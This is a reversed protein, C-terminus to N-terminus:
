EILLRWFKSRTQASTDRFMEYVVHNDPYSQDVRVGWLGTIENPVMSYRVDVVLTSDNKALALYDNSFWRFRELDKAQLSNKPLLPFDRELNFKTITEGPFFKKSLGVRVADIRFVEGSRTVIKWVLLNAFTPKASLHEFTFGQATLQEAAFAEARDRQIVGLLLYFIAWGLAVRGYFINKRFIAFICLFLVPVTFMPDIVSVSNWAVRYNSFPWFLLTGYTTCADLLGHTAYGITTFFYTQKFSLHKRSWFYLLLSVVLGGIPIFVLAHTFQRHYELFLLPDKKSSIFVDLDPAMGGLAGLISILLIHNKIKKTSQAASAGLVGQSIPDM